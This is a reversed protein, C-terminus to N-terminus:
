LEQMRQGYSSARGKSKPRAHCLPFAKPYGPERRRGNVSAANQRPKTEGPHKAERALVPAAAVALGKPPDLPVRDNVRGKRQPQPVEPDAPHDAAPNVWPMAGRQLRLAQLHSPSVPAGGFLRKAPPRPPFLALQANGGSAAPTGPPM